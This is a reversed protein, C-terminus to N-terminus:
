PPHLQRRKPRQRRDKQTIDKAKNVDPNVPVIMMMQQMRNPLDVAGNEPGIEVEQEPEREKREGGAPHSLVMQRRRRRSQISKNQQHRRNSIVKELTRDQRPLSRLRQQRVGDALIP